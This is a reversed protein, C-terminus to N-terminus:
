ADRHVIKRAICTAIHQTFYVEEQRRFPRTGSLDQQEDQKILERVQAAREPPTHANELWAELPMNLRDTFVREVELGCATFLALLESLSLARTHSTDRLQEFNNQYAARAPFESVILDQIAVTGQLHCVRAMEALVIQPDECHHLAYRSVVVDFTPSTWPLHEADGLQFHLNTLGRADCMQEALALPAPTLDLGVVECGAEAFAAAVYGPGTAVDLVHAGPQPRVAQVLAALRDTNKILPNAAYSQAQQTFEQQVVAKHDPSPSSV